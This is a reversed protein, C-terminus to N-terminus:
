DNSLDRWDAQAEDIDTCPGTIGGARYGGLHRPAVDAFALDAGPRKIASGCTSSSSPASASGKSGRLAPLPLVELM